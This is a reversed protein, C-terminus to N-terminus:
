DTIDNLWEEAHSGVFSTNTNTGYPIETIDTATVAKVLITVILLFPCAM